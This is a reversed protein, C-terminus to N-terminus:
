LAAFRRPRRAAGTGDDVAPRRRASGDHDAAFGIRQLGGSALAAQLQHLDLPQALLAVPDRQEVLLSEPHQDGVPSRRDAPLGVLESNNLGADPLVSGFYSSM